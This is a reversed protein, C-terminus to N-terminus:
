AARRAANDIAIKNQRAIENKRAAEKLQDFTMGLAASAIHLNAERIDSTHFALGNDGKSHDFGVFGQGNHLMHLGYFTDEAFDRSKIRYVDEKPRSPDIEADFNGMFMVQLSHLGDVMGNKVIGLRCAGLWPMSNQAILTPSIKKEFAHKPGLSKAFKSFNEEGLIGLNGLTTQAIEVAAMRGFDIKKLQPGTAIKQRTEGDSTEEGFFWKSYKTSSAASPQQNAAAAQRRANEAIQEVSSAFRKAYESNAQTM